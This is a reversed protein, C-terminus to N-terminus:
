LTMSRYEDYLKLVLPIANSTETWLIGEAKDNAVWLAARKEGGEYAALGGELDYTEILASLYRTGIRINYIPNFLVEEPTTWTIDEYNAIWMGTTPMVQMLGMAGANSVVAPDWSRGSEHTITACILDVDLNTYKLSMKYIEDAIEYKKSSPLDHNYQGIIKMIKQITFQRVSDVNMAARIDQLSKRFEDIRRSDAPPVAAFYTISYIGVIIVAAILAVVVISGSRKLWTEGKAIDKTM